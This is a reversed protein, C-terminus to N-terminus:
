SRLLLLLDDIARAPVEGLEALSMTAFWVTMGTGARVARSLAQTVAAAAEDKQGIKGLANVIMGRIGPNVLRLPDCLISVLDPVASAGLPGLDGLSAVAVFQEGEDTSELMSTIASIIETTSIGPRAAEEVRAMAGAAVLRLRNNDSRLAAKLVKMAQASQERLAACALLCLYASGESIIKEVAAVAGAPVKPLRTLYSLALCRLNSNNSDLVEVLKEVAVSENTEHMLLLYAATLSTEGTEEILVQILALRYLAPGIRPLEALLKDFGLMATGPNDSRLLRIVRMAVDRPSEAGEAGGDAVTTNPLTEGM